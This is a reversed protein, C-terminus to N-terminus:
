KDTPEKTVHVVRGVMEAAKFNAHLWILKRIIEDLTRRNRHCFVIGPHDVRQNAIDLFDVDDTVFMQHNALAFALQANDDEARLGAEVTTTVDIGAARLARAVAGDIHEDLHFRVPEDM